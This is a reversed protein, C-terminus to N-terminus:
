IDHNNVRIQKTITERANEALYQKERENAVWINIQRKFKSKRNARFILHKWRSRPIRYKRPSQVAINNKFSEDERVICNVDM